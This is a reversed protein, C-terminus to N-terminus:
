EDTRSKGGAVSHKRIMATARLWVEDSQFMERRLTVCLECASEWLILRREDSAKVQMSTWQFRRVVGGYQVCLGDDDLYGKQYFHTYSSRSQRRYAIGVWCGFLLFICVASILLTSAPHVHFAFAKMSLGTVGGIVASIGTLAITAYFLSRYLFRQQRPPTVHERLDAGSVTGFFRIADDPFAFLEPPDAQLMMTKAREIRAASQEDCHVADAITRLLQWDSDTEVLRRPVIGYVNPQIASQFVVIQDSALANAIGLWSVFALTHCERIESLGARTITGESPHNWCPNFCLFDSRRYSRSLLSALVSFLLAVGAAAMAWPWSANVLVILSGFVIPILLMWAVGTTATLTLFEELDDEGLTGSFRASRHEDLVGRVCSEVDVKDPGASETPEYPNISSMESSM